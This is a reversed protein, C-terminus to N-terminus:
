APAIVRRAFGDIEGADLALGFARGDQHGPQAPLPALPTIKSESPRDCQLARLGWYMVDTQSQTAHFTVFTVREGMTKEPPVKMAVDHHSNGCLASAPEEKEVEYWSRM